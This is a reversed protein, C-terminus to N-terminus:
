VKIDPVLSLGAEARLVGLDRKLSFAKTNGYSVSWEPSVDSFSTTFNKDQITLPSSLTWSKNDIFSQITLPLTTNM